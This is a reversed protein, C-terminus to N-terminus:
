QCVRERCSARGIKYAGSLLTGLGSVGSIGLRPRVVWFRSDSQTIYESGERNLEASVIVKSRDPAVKIGSVLGIVVDKYRVKTQGVELGDASEFSINITPGM